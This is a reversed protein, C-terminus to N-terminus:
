SRAIRWAISSPRGYKRSMTVSDGTVSVGGTAAHVAASFWRDIDTPARFQALPNGENEIDIGSGVIRERECVRDCRGPDVKERDSSHCAIDFYFFCRRVGEGHKVPEASGVDGYVPAGASRQHPRVDVRCIEMVLSSETARSDGGRCAGNARIPTRCGENTESPLM